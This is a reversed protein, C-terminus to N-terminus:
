RGGRRAASANDATMRYATREMTSRIETIPLTGAAFRGILALAMNGMILGLDALYDSDLGRLAAEAAPLVALLGQTDLREGGPGTRAHHYAELMKPNREWPEFVSRLVRILTERVSEGPEPPAVDAYANADMWQALATIILEDRTRFLRYIKALSVHARAAVTRLQVAEYGETNLLDLVVAVIKASADSDTERAM